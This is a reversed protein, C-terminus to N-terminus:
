LTGAALTMIEAPTLARDYLRFDDLLGQLAANISGTDMDCGVLFEADDYVIADTPGTAIEAGNFYLRATTGEVTAAVHHWEGFPIPGEGRLARTGAAPRTAFVLKDFEIFLEFANQETTAPEFPKSVINSLTMADIRFWAAITLNTLRFASEDPFRLCRAGGFVAGQAIMGQAFTPCSSCTPVRGAIVDISSGEFPLWLRLSSDAGDVGGEAPQTDASADTSADLRPAFDVRGCATVALAVIGWALLRM